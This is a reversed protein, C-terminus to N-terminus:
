RIAETNLILPGKTCRSIKSLCKITYIVWKWLELIFKIQKHQKSLITTSSSTWLSSAVLGMKWIRAQADAESIFTPSSILQHQYSTLSPGAQASCWEILHLWILHWNTPLAPHTHTHAHMHEACWFPHVFFRSFSYAPFNCWGSIWAM